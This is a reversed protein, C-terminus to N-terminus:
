PNQKANARIKTIKAGIRRKEPMLGIMTFLGTSEPWM